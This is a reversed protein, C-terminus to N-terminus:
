RFLYLVTSSRTSRFIPFNFLNILKIYIFFVCVLCEGLNKNEGQSLEQQRLFALISKKIRDVFDSQSNAIYGVFTKYEAYVLISINNDSTSFHIYGVLTSEMVNSLRDLTESSSPHFYLIKSEALIMQSINRIAQKPILQFKLETPWNTFQIGNTSIGNTIHCPLQLSIL